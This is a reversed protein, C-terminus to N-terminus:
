SARFLTAAATPSPPPRAPRPLPATHMLARARLPLARLARASSVRVARVRALVCAKYRTTLFFIAAPPELAVDAFVGSRGSPLMKIVSRMNKFNTSSDNCLEFHM